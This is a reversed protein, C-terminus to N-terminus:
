RRAIGVALGIVMSLVSIVIAAIALGRGRQPHRNIQNLAVIGCVLGAINCLFALVFGAIAMGNFGTAPPPAGYPPPPAAGYGYPQNAPQQPQGPPPGWQPQNPPQNPPQNSPQNPPQNWGPPPAPQGWPSHGSEPKDWNPQNPDSM